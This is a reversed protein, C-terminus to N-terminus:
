SLKRFEARAFIEQLATEDKLHATFAAGDKPVVLLSGIDVFQIREVQCLLISAHDTFPLASRRREQPDVYDWAKGGRRDLPVGKPTNWRISCHFLDVASSSDKMEIHMEIGQGEM